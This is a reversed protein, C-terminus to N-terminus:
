SQEMIEKVYKETDDVISQPMEQKNQLVGNVADPLLQRRPLNKDSNGFNHEHMIDGGSDFKIRAFQKGVTTAVATKVRQSGRQLNVRDTRYGLKKREKEARKSYVPDYKAENFGVGKDVNEEMADILRGAMYLSGLHRAKGVQKDILSNFGKIDFETTVKM